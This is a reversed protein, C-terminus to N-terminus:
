GSCTARRSPYRRVLKMMSSNALISVSAPGRPAVGAMSRRQGRISNITQARQRVFLDRTRLALGSAQQEESKIALIRM